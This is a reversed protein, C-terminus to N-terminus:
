LNPMLPAALRGKCSQYTKELEKTYDGAYSEACELALKLANSLSSSMQELAVDSCPKTM